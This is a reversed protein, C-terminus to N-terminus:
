AAVFICNLGQALLRTRFAVMNIRAAGGDKKRPMLLLDGDTVMQKVTRISHGYREAFEDYTMLDAGSPIAIQPTM